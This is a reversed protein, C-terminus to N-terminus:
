SLHDHQFVVPSGEVREHNRHFQGKGEREERGQFGAQRVMKQERAPWERVKWWNSCSASAHVLAVQRGANKCATGVAPFIGVRGGVGYFRAFEEDNLRLSEKWLWLDLPWKETWGRWSKKFACNLMGVKKFAKEEEQNGGSVRRRRGWEGSRRLRKM